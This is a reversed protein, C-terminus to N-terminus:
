RPAERDLARAYDAASLDCFKKVRDPEIRPRAIGLRDSVALMERGILPILWGNHRAIQLNLRLNAFDAPGLGEPREFIALGWWADAEKTEWSVVEPMQAYFKGMLALEDRPFHTLTQASKESQWASDSLLVGIGRVGIDATGAPRGAALEGIHRQAQDLRRELCPAIAVRWAYFDDIVAIEARLSQRATAVESRWHAWSVAQDAALAISVGLVIIGVEALLARWNRLKLKEM